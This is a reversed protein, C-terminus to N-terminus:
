FTATLNTFLGRYDMRFDGIFNDGAVDIDQRFFRYGGEVSFRDSFKWGGYLSTDLSVGEHRDAETLFVDLKAGMTFRETLNARFRAGLVPLYSTSAAVNTGQQDAVRFKIRTVHLGGFMTLEKQSDRLFALGYGVRAVQTDFDTRTGNLSGGRNLEFYSAELTHYRGHRWEVDIPFTTKGGELNADTELDFKQVGNDFIFDVSSAADAFFTGISLDLSSIGQWPEPTVFAAADYALGLNMRWVNDKDVLPSNSIAAPLADVGVYGNVYWHKSFRWSIDAVASWTVAGGPVYAPRGPIAEEPRVGFYHNLLDKSEWSARIEPVFEFRDSAFVWGLAVNAEWGNHEGLIDASADINIRADGIRKGLIGGAQMTWNRRAMGVLVESVNSGYGYTNFGLTGGFVWGDDRVKRLGFNANRVFFASDTQFYHSFSQPVPYPLVFNDVGAYRSETMLLNVGLAYDNLDIADLFDAVGDSRASTSALLTGIGAVLATKKAWMTVNRRM